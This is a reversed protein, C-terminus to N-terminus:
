SRVTFRFAVSNACSNTNKTSAPHRHFEDPRGDHLCEVLARLLDGVPKAAASLAFTSRALASFFEVSSSRLARSDAASSRPPASFCAACSNSSARASALRMTAAARSAASVSAAEAAWRGFFGQALMDGLQGHCTGLLDERLLDIGLGM